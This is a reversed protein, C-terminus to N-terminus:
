SSSYLKFQLAKRISATTAGAAEALKTLLGLKRFSALRLAAVKQHLSPSFVALTTKHMREGSHHISIAGQPPIGRKNEEYVEYRRFELELRAERAAGNQACYAKPRGLSICIESGDRAVYVEVMYPHLISMSRQRIVEVMWPFKRLVKAIEVLRNRLVLWMRVWEVGFTEAEAV